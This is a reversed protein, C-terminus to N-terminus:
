FRLGPGKLDWEGMCINRHAGGCGQKESLTCVWCLLGPNEAFFALIIAKRHWPKSVYEWNLSFFHSRSTM